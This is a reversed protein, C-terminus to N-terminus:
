IEGARNGNSCIAYPKTKRVRKFKWKRRVSNCRCKDCYIHFKSSSTPLQRFTTDQYPPSPGSPTSVSKIEDLVLRKSVWLSAGTFPQTRSTLFIHCLLCETSRKIKLSKKWKNMQSLSVSCSCSSLCLSLSFCVGQQAPLKFHPQIFGPVRPDHGSSVASM